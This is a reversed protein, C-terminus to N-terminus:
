NKRRRTGVLGVLALGMLWLASPEPVEAVLPSMTGTFRGDGVFTLGTPFAGVAFPDLGASPEIGHIEFRDVGAPGFSFQTGGMLDLGSDAYTSGNWLFLDFLNDGFGTPLLVSGFNPNGPDTRYEFGTTVAPDIYYLQGRHVAFDFNFVPVGDPRTEVSPLFVDPTGSPMPTFEFFSRTFRELNANSINSTNDRTDAANIELSYQHGFLLSLGSSLQTPVTYSTTNGPLSVVHINQPSGDSALNSLDRIQVRVGDIGPPNVWTVTPNATSGGFLVDTVFPLPTTNTVAPTNVRVTNTTGVPNTFDLTWSGARASTFAPAISFFHPNAPSNNWVLTRVESGITATATTGGGGDPQVNSAGLEIRLGQTLGARNPGRLDLFEFVGNVAIPAADALAACLISVLGAVRASCRAQSM